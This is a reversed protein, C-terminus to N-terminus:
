FQQTTNLLQNVYGHQESELFPFNLFIRIFISPHLPKMLNYKSKTNLIRKLVKTLNISSFSLYISFYFITQVILYLVM